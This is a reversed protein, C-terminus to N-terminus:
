RSAGIARAADAPTVHSYRMTTRWSRHGLVEAVVPVPFGQTLLETARAHRLQHPTPGEPAAGKWARQLSSRSVGPRWGKLLAASCSPPLFISRRRGSKSDPLRLSARGDGSGLDWPGLVEGLRAGTRWLVRATRAVELDGRSRLSRLLRAVDARSAGARRAGEPLSRRAPPDADTLGEERATRLVAGLAAMHRNITSPGLGISRLHGEVQRLKAPTVSSCPRLPGLVEVCRLARSYSREGDKQPGWRTTLTLDLAESLTTRKMDILRYRPTRPPTLTKKPLM